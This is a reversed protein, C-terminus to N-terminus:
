ETVQWKKKSILSEFHLPTENSLTQIWSDMYWETDHQRRQIASAIWSDKWELSVPQSAYRSGDQCTRKEKEKKPQLGLSPMMSFRWSIPRSLLFILFWTQWTQLSFKWTSFIAGFFKERLLRETKPESKPIETVPLKEPDVQLHECLRLSLLETSKKTTQFFLDAFISSCTQWPWTWLDM